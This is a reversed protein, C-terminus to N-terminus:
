QQYYNSTQGSGGIIWDNYNFSSNTNNFDFGDGIVRQNPGTTHQQQLQKNPKQVSWIADLNHTGVNPQRDYSCNNRSPEYYIGNSRPVSIMSIGVAKGNGGVTRIGGTPQQGLFSENSSVPNHRGSVNFLSNDFNGSTMGHQQQQQHMQGGSGYCLASSLIAASDYLNQQLSKDWLLPSSPRAVALAASANAAVSSTSLTPVPGSGTVSSVALVTKKKRMSKKKLRALLKEPINGSLFCSKEEMTLTCKLLMHPNFPHDVCIVFIDPYKELYKKLGGFKEKLHTSLSIQGTMEQLMKGVEGVPLPGRDALIDKCLIRLATETIKGNLVLNYYHIRNVLRPISVVLGDCSDEEHCKYEIAVVSDGDGGCATFEYNHYAIPSINNEVNVFDDHYYLSSLMCDVVRGQYKKVRVLEEGTPVEAKLRSPAGSLMVLFLEDVACKQGNLDNDNCLVAGLKRATETFFMSMQNVNDLPLPKSVMNLDLYFPHVVNVSQKMFVRSESLKLNVPLSSGITSVSHPSLSLPSGSGGSSSGSPPVSEDPLENSELFLDLYRQTHGASFLDGDEPENPIPCGNILPVPGQLTIAYNSWDLGNFQWIFYCFAQFPFHIFHHYKNFVSCVMVCLVSESLYEGFGNENFSTSEYMWWGRILLLSRKFLHGKGVARDAEELLVTLLMDGKVNAYIEFTVDAVDCQLRYYNQQCQEISNFLINTLPYSVSENDSEYVADTETTCQPKEDGPVSNLMGCEERVRGGIVSNHSGYGVRGPVASISETFLKDNLKAHWNLEQSHNTIISLKVKDCPLFCKLTTVTLDFARANLSKRIIKSMYMVLAYRYACQLETPQIASIVRNVSAGHLNLGDANLPILARDFGYGHSCVSAPLPIILQSQLFPAAMSSENCLVFQDASVDHTKNTQQHEADTLCPFNAANFELAHVREALQEIILMASDLQKRTEHLTDRMKNVEESLHMNDIKLHMNSLEMFNHFSTCHWTEQILVLHQLYHELQVRLDDVMQIGYKSSAVSDIHIIPLSPLRVHALRSSLDRHLIEFSNYCRHVQYVFSELRLSVVFGTSDSSDRTIMSVCCPVTIVIEPGISVASSDLSSNEEYCPIHVPDAATNWLQIGSSEIGRPVKQLRSELSDSNFARPTQLHNGCGAAPSLSHSNIDQLGNGPYQSLIDMHNPAFLANGSASIPMWLDHQKNLNRALEDPVVNVRLDKRQHRFLEDSRRYAKSQDM